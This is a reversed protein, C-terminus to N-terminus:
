LKKYQSYLEGFDADLSAYYEYKKYKDIEKFKKEMEAELEKKKKARDIADYWASLDIHQVYKYKEACNDNNYTDLDDYEDESIVKGLFLGQNKKEVVITDGVNLEKHATIRTAKRNIKDSLITSMYEIAYVM